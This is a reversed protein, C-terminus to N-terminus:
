YLFHNPGYVDTNHVRDYDHEEMQDKFEEEAAAEFFDRVEDGFQELIGESDLIEFLVWDKDEKLLKMWDIKKSAKDLFDEDEVLGVIEERQEESLKQFYEEVNNAITEDSYENFFEKLDDSDVEYEHNFSTSDYEDRAYPTLWDFNYELTM